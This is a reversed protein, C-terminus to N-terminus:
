PGEEPLARQPERRFSRWVREPLPDAAQDLDLGPAGAFWRRAVEAVPGIVLMETLPSPLDVIIGADVHSRLRVLSRAM